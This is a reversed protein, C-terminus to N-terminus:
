ASRRRLRRRPQQRRTVVDVGAEALTDLAPPPTRFYYRDSAFELEKPDRRGRVTVPTELNVMAVDAARLTRSIPGLGRRMLTGVHAEFHVDGAFALTVEGRAPTAAAEDVAPVPARDRTRTDGPTAPTCASLALAVVAAGGWTRAGM